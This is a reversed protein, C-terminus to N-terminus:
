AAELYGMSNAARRGLGYGGILTGDAGWSTAEWKYTGYRANSPPTGLDIETGIVKARQDGRQTQGVAGGDQLNVTWANSQVANGQAPAYSVSLQASAGASVEGQQLLVFSAQTQGAVLTIVAGQANVLSPTSGPPTILAKFKDALSGLSLTLTEGAQAAQNLYVTFTKASGEIVSSSQGALSSAEFRADSWTNIGGAAEKVVLKRAPDLQIGLYGTASQAQTLDFDNITITNATDAGTGTGKVIVLRKGTASRADDYVTMGVFVGSGPGLEAVWTNLQGAGKAAGLTQGDIQISGSGDTDAVLDKGWLGTFQYLDTGDGGYLADNSQGGNLTDNGAGAFIVDARRGGTFTDAGGRGIFIQSEDQERATAVVATTAATAVNWQQKTGFDPFLTTGHALSVETLWPAVYLKSRDEAGSLNDGQATSYQLVSGSRTSFEQGAYDTAQWYYWEVGQAVIAKQAAENVGSLEQGLRHLDAAFHSLKGNGINAQESRILDILFNRQTSTAATYAYFENDLVVPLTAQVTITAQRFSDSMMGATLLAQSHLAVANDFPGLDLQESGFQIATVQGAGEIPALGARLPQLVEGETYVHKVRSERGAFDTSPFYSGFAVNELGDSRLGFYTTTKLQLDTAFSEMPRQNFVTAPQDFWVAMLSALGGGLSHGTFSVKDTGYTAIAQAAVQAAQRLQFNGINLNEAWDIAENTGTYSVVVKETTNNRYVGYSFGASNDVEQIRSRV